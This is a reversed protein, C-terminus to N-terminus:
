QGGRTSVVTAAVVAGVLAAALGALWFATPIGHDAYVRAVFWIVPAALWVLLGRVAWVVALDAPISMFTPGYGLLTCAVHAALLGAAAVLCGAPVQTQLESAWWVLVIGMTVSVVLHDPRFAALVGGLLVVVVVVASPTHGEPVGGLLGLLLGVVVVARVVWVSPAVTLRM